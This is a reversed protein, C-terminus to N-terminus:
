DWRLRHARPPGGSESFSKPARPWQRTPGPRDLSESAALASESAGGEGSGALRATRQARPGAFAAAARGPRGPQSPSESTLNSDRCTPPLAEPVPVGLLSPEPRSPGRWPGLAPTRTAPNRALNDLAARQTGQALDLSSAGLAGGGHAYFGSSSVTGLRVRVTESILPPGPAAAAPESLRSWRSRGAGRGKLSCPLAAGGGERWCAVQLTRRRRRRRRDGRRPPGARGPTSSEHSEGGGRAEGRRRATVADGGEGSVGRRPHSPLLSESAAAM